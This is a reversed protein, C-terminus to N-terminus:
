KLKNEFTNRTGIVQPKGNVQEPIWRPSGLLVRRVEILLLPDTDKSMDIDSLTGDTNVTYSIQLKEPKYPMQLHSFLYEAFKENGGPFHSYVNGAHNKLEDTYGFSMYSVAVKYGKDESGNRQYTKKVPAKAFDPQYELAENLITIKYIKNPYHDYIPRIHKAFYTHTYFFVQKGAETSKSGGGAFDERKYKLLEDRTTTKNDLFFDAETKNIFSNYNSENLVEAKKKEPIYSLYHEKEEQTIKKYPKNIFVGAPKDDIVIQVDKFYEDRRLTLSDSPVSKIYQAHFSNKGAHLSQTGLFCIFFLFVSIFIVLTQNTPKTTM